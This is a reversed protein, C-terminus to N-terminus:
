CIVQQNKQNAVEASEEAAVEDPEPTVEPEVDEVVETVAPESPEQLM